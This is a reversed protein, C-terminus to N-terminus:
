KTCKQSQIAETVTMNQKWITSRTM